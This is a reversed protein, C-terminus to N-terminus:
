EVLKHSLAYRTIQVPTALGTKKKIRLLYTGVTKESLCMDGAIEKVTRGLAILRLVEFERESLQEHPAQSAGQKLEAALKEAVAASVYTGGALVKSVASIVQEGANQKSLYGAAGSRLARVAFDEEPAASLVLIPLDLDARSVEGLVELGSRDPLSLDLLLLDWKRDKLRALAERATVAEGIEVKHFHDQLIWKLGRRVVEHDDAILIRKM